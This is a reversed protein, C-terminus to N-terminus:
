QPYFSHNIIKLQYKLTEINFLTLIIDFFIKNNDDEKQNYLSISLIKCKNLINNDDIFVFDNNNNIFNFRYSNIINNKEINIIEDKNYNFCFKNYINKVENITIFSKNIFKIKNLDEYSIFVEYSPGIKKYMEDYNYNLSIPRIDLDLHNKSNNENNDNEIYSYKGCNVFIDNTLQYTYLYLNQNYELTMFHSLIPTIVSFYVGYKGTENKDYNPKPINNDIDFLSTRFLHLNKSLKILKNNDLCKKYQNILNNNLEKNM